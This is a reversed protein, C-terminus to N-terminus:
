AGRGEIDLGRQTIEHAYDGQFRALWRAAEDRDAADILPLLRHALMIASITNGRLLSPTTTKGSAMLPELATDLILDRTARGRGEVAELFLAEYANIFQDLEDASFEATRSDPDLDADQIAVDALAPRLENWARLIASRVADSPAPVPPTSM